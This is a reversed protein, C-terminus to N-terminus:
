DIKFEIKKFKDDIDTFVIIVSGVKEIEKAEGNVENLMVDKKWIIDVGPEEGLFKRLNEKINSLKWDRNFDIGAIYEKIMQEKM